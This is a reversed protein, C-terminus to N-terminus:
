FCSNKICRLFFTWKLKMLYKDFLKGFNVSLIDEFSHSFDQKLILTLIIKFHLMFLIILFDFYAILVIAM